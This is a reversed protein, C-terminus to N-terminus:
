RRRRIPKPGRYIPHIFSDARFGGPGDWLEFGQHQTAIYDGRSVLEHAKLLRMRSPTVAEADIAVLPDQEPVTHCAGDPQVQFARPAQARAKLPYGGPLVGGGRPREVHTPHVM